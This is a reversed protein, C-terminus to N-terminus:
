ADGGMAWTRETYSRDLVEQFGAVDAPPGAPVTGSAGAASHDRLICAASALGDLDPWREPEWLGSRRLAKACHLYATTVTVIVAVNPRLGATSAQELVAPDVSVEARGVVRLTEGVGPVLFLLSMGPSSVLNGLSDLRNNGSMDPVALRRDDLVSVFGPPGGKPSADVRGQGDTTALVAFPSRAIFDRCHRDLHDIEKALSVAGPPRYVRRLEESTTLTLPDGM